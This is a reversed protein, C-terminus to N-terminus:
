SAPVFVVCVPTAVRLVHSTPTLHGNSRDVKFITISNSDQNAAFLWKGTPDLAFHRPAKGGTAVREVFSLKGSRPDIAFVALSDNGRNSAYLFKGKADVAIEATTNEGKFDAPLTSITQMEQLKGSSETYGLVTVTSAMENVLYVFKGSPAIAFHRPGSGPSVKVFAPDNPTLSGSKSDFRYVLLEDLGLDATLM